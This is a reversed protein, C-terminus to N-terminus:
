GRQRRRPRTPSAALAALLLSLAAPEPVQVFLSQFAAPGNAAIFADKFLGFDAIGNVGDGDLDGSQYAEMATLGSLETEAGEQFLQWDLLDLAGDSNLDAFLPLDIDITFFGLSGYDSYLDGNGDGDVSIVYDGADLTIDLFANITVTPDVTAVVGGESDYVVMAVDLNPDQGFPKVSISVEGFGTSFQFYDADDQNEIIGWEFISNDEEDLVHPSSISTLYDDSRFGFGRSTIYAYDDALNTAGDYNGDSWQSLNAQFPAGMIPGWSTSGTGTGPHYEQDYYGDHSLGFTHGVEHTATVGGKRVGKNFIFVPNDLADDFGVAGANGGIGDGFSGVAQTMVARVGWTTDSGGSNTLAGAGPYETTVNVNFPLYDESVTQFIKQIEILEEDSFTSSDGDRDYAPFNITHGWVNGSSYFGTFDLYITKTASPYSDLNFTDALPYPADGTDDGLTFNGDIYAPFISTAFVDSAPATLFVLVALATTLTPPTNKM